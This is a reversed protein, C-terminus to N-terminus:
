EVVVVVVVVAVLLRLQMQVRLLKIVITYIMIKNYVQRLRNSTKIYPEEPRILRKIDPFRTEAEEDSLHELFGM